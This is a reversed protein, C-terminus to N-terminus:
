DLIVRFHSRFLSELDQRIVKAGYWFVKRDPRPLIMVDTEHRKEVKTVKTEGAKERTLKQAKVGIGDTYVVSEPADPDYIDIAAQYALRNNTQSEGGSV